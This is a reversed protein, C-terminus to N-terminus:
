ILDILTQGQKSGYDALIEEEAFSQLTNLAGIYIEILGKTGLFPLLLPGLVVYTVLGYALCFFYRVAIWLQKFAVYTEKRADSSFVKCTLLLVQILRSFLRAPGYILALVSLDISLGLHSLIQSFFSPPNIREAKKKETREKIEKLLSFNSNNIFLFM